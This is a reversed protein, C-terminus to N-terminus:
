EAQDACCRFGVEAYSGNGVQLRFSTRLYQTTSANHGGGRGVFGAGCGGDWASGDVPAGAYGQHWCDQVWEIVNGSLDLAGYLSAGDPLSGVNWAKGEGCGYNASGVGLASYVALGCDGPDESGWPFLPMAAACADLDSEDAGRPGCGGRAAKEWEAETCLRWPTGTQDARWACYGGAMTWSVRHQPLTPFCPYYDPNPPNYNCYMPSSPETCGGAVVCDEWSAVTVETRDIVFAPVDVLHAPGTGNSCLDQTTKEDCGMVFTGEPVLVADDSLLQCYDWDPNLDSGSPTCEFAAPCPVGLLGCSCVGATCSGGDCAVGESGPAPTGLACEGGACISGVQCPNSSCAANGNTPSWELPDDDPSCMLCDAHTGSAPQAGEDVCGGGLWCQGTQVGAYVHTCGLAPDCADDTCPLGDDCALESTGVCAGDSCASGPTCLDDDECAGDLPASILTEADTAAACVLCPAGEPSAGDEYCEGDVACWGPPPTLESTSTTPDCALCPVAVSTEGEAYCEAGVLCHEASPTLTTASSASDCVHCPDDVPGEGDAYCAGDIHCSGPLIVLSSDSTTVDCALCPSAVSAENHLYCIDDVLCSGDQVGSVTCGGQGDCAVGIACAPEPCEYPTGACAGGVCEDVTCADGDEACEGCSGGCGDDGCEAAACDPCCASAGCACGLEALVPWRTGNGIALRSGVVEATIAHGPPDLLSAAPEGEPHLEVALAPDRLDFARVGELGTAVWAVGDHLRVDAMWDGADLTPFTVWLEPQGPNAVSLVHLGGRSDALAVVDGEADVRWADHVADSSWSGLEALTDLALVRLGGRGEALYIRGAEGDVAVGGVTTATEVQGDVAPQGALAVRELGAHGAAVYAYGDYVAVDRALGQIAVTVPDAGPAELDLIKLGADMAAVYAFGGSVDVRTAVADDGLDWSAMAVPEAPDALGLMKVGDRGLCAVLESDAVARMHRIVDGEDPASLPAPSLDPVSVSALGGVGQAVSVLGWEDATAPDYVLHVDRARGTTEKEAALAATGGAADVEVVALGASGAAVYLTAEGTADTGVLREASGRLPTEALLEGSWSYLAVGAAGAALAVWGDGAAIDAPSHAVAFSATVAGSEMDFGIVGPAGSGDDYGAWVLDGVVRVSRFAHGLDAPTGWGPPETCYTAPCFSANVLDPVCYNDGGGWCRCTDQVVLGAATASIARDQPGGWENEVRAIAIARAPAPLECTHANPSPLEPGIQVWEMTLDPGLTVTFFLNPDFAAVGLVAGDSLYQGTHVSGTEEVNFLEVGSRGLARLVRIYGLGPGSVGLTPGWADVRALIEPAATAGVAILHLGGIRSAVAVTSGSPSLRALPLPTGQTGPLASTPVGVALWGDADASYAHVVVQGVDTHQTVLGATAAVHQLSEGTGHHLTAQHAPSEPTGLDFVEVGADDEEIGVFLRDGGVAITSASDAGYAWTSVCAPTAPTTVDLVVVGGKGGAVYAYLSGSNPDLYMDIQSPVFGSATACSPEFTKLCDTTGALGICGAPQPVGDAGVSLLEVTATNGVALAVLIEGSGLQLARVDRPTGAIAISASVEGPKSPVSLDVTRLGSGPYDVFFVLESAIDMTTAAVPAGDVATDRAAVVRPNNPDSVDLVRLGAGVTVVVDESAWAVDAVVPSPLQVAGEPVLADVVCGCAISAVPAAVCGLVPDCSEDTCPDGDDCGGCSGGCGDDGCAVACDPECCADLHCVETPSACCAGACALDVCGCQGFADCTEYEGCDGCSGGCGDDGCVKGDCATWSCEADVCAQGCECGCDSPCSECTEDSLDGCTGDGCFPDPVCEGDVCSFGGGCDACVGGCGDDGCVKDVCDPECCAELHCVETPTSCCGAACTEHTCVCQGGDCEEVEACSGCSGGCGDDGCVKGVCATSACVADLCAEGCACGCDSPCSECTEESQDGCAGDGCFPDPVCAAEVCAAGGGCDGCTGGCGDGGCEKDQCDPECCGGLHCVETATTCCAAGCPQYVCQCQGLEDCVEADGCAGCSAGCGDDGCARGGCDPTCTTADPGVADADAVGGGESDWLAAADAADSTAAGDLLVESADAPAATDELAPAVTDPGADTEGAAPADTLDGAVEPDPDAVFPRVDYCGGALLAVLCVLLRLQRGAEGRTVRM